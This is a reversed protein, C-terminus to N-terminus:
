SRMSFRCFYAGTPLIPEPPDITFGLLALFRIAKKYPAHVYNCLDPYLARMEALERRGERVFAVPVREVAPSTLLWPIGTGGMMSGTVGWAAAVEGDVLAARRLVSTRWCRWLIAQPSGTGMAALEAGDEARLTRALTRLHCPECDLITYRKDM